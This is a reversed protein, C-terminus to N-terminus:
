RRCPRCVIYAAIEEANSNPDLLLKQIKLMVKPMPPLDQVAKIFEDKLDVQSETETSKQQAENSM